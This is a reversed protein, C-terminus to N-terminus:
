LEIERHLRLLYEAAHAPNRTVIKNCGCYFCPRACFPVHVYISLPRTAGSNSLLAVRRYHQEDFGTHFQVATPYSTYRPGNCDYRRILAADLRM